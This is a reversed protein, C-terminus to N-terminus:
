NDQKIVLNRVMVLINKGNERRYIQQDTFNRIFHIGLGGIAADELNEVAETERQTPDFALGDDVVRITAVHQGDNETLSLDIRCHGFGDAPWAYSVINILAEEAVMGLQSAISHPVGAEAFWEEIWRAREVAEEVDRLGEISVSLGDPM